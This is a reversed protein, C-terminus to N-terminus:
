TWIKRTTVGHLTTTPYHCKPTGRQWCRWDGQLRLCWPGGFRQYGVVVSCPTVVWLVDIEIRLVTEKFAKL